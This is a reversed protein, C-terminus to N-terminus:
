QGAGACECASVALESVSQSVLVTAPHSRHGGAAGRQRLTDLAEETMVGRGPHYNTLETVPTKNVSASQASTAHTVRATRELVDDQRGASQSTLQKTWNEDSPRVHGTARGDDGAWRIFAQECSM